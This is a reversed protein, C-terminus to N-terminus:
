GGAADLIKDVVMSLIIFTKNSRKTVGKPSCGDTCDWSSVEEKQVVRPTARVEIVWSCPCVTALQTKRKNKWSYADVYGQDKCTASDVGPAVGMGPMSPVRRHDSLM